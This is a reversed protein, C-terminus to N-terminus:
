IRLKKKWLLISIAIASIVIILEFGPVGRVPNEPQKNILYSADLSGDNDSDYEVSIESNKNLGSWNNINFTYPSSENIKLNDQISAGNSESVFEVDLDTDFDTEIDLSDLNKSVNMKIENGDVISGSINIYYNNKSDVNTLQCTYNGEDTGYLVTKYEESPNLSIFITPHAEQSLFANPINNEMLNTTRNVGAHNGLKDFVHLEIPSYIQFGLINVHAGFQTSFYSIGKENIGWNAPETWKLGQYAPGKPSPYYHVASTLIPPIYSGYRGWYYDGNLWNENGNIFHYNFATLPVHGTMEMCEGKIAIVIINLYLQLWDLITKVTVDVVKDILFKALMGAVGTLGLSEPSLVIGGAALIDSILKHPAIIRSVIYTCAFALTDSGLGYYFVNYLNMLVWDEMKSTPFIRCDKNEDILEIKFKTASFYNAHSGEAPFVIPRTYKNNFDNQALDVDLKLDRWIRKENWYHQSLIIYEPAKDNEIIEGINKAKWVIEVLEWDGEHYNIWDNVLYFYWYQITVCDTTESLVTNDYNSLGYNTQYSDSEIIRIYVTPSYGLKKQISLYQNETPPDWIKGEVDTFYMERYDGNLNSNDFMADVQIPFYKEDSTFYLIPM